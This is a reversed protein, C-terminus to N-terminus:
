KLIVFVTDSTVMPREVLLLTGPQLDAKAFYGRGKGKVNRAFISNSLFSFSPPFDYELPLKTEPDQIKEQLEFLVSWVDEESMVSKKADAM